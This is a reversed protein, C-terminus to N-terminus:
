AMKISRGSMKEVLIVPNRGNIIGTVSWRLIFNNITHDTKWMM